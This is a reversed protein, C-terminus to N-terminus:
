SENLLPIQSIRISIKITYYCSNYIRIFFPRIDHFASNIIINDQQIKRVVCM